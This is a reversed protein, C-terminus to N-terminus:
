SVPPDRIWWVKALLTKIRDAQGQICHQATRNTLIPWMHMEASKVKFSKYEGKDGRSALLFRTYVVFKNCVISVTNIEM